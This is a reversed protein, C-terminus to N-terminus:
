RSGAHQSKELSAPTNGRVQLELQRGVVEGQVQAGSIKNQQCNLADNQLKNNM